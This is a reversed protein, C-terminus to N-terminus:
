RPQSSPSKKSWWRYSVPHLRPPLRNSPLSRRAGAPSELKPPVENSCGGYQLRVQACACTGRWANKEKPGDVARKRKPLVSFFIPPPIVREIIKVLFRRHFVEQFFEIGERLHRLQDAPHLLAATGGGDGPELRDLPGTHAGGHGPPGATRRHKEAAVLPFGALQRAIQLGQQAPRRHQKQAPLPLQPRPGHDGPLPLPATQRGEVGQGPPIGPRHDSGRVRQHLPRHRRRKQGGQGDRQLHASLRIQRRQRVPEEGRAISPASLHLAHALEGQPATDQVHERRQHVLRHPTFEKIVLDVRHPSEVGSGLPPRGIHARRQQQRRRLHQRGGDGAAASRQRLPQCRQRSFQLLPGLGGVAYGPQPLVSLLQFAAGIGAAHVPIQRRHVVCKGGADM